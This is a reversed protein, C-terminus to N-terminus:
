VMIKGPVRSVRSDGSGVGEPGINGRVNQLLGREWLERRGDPGAAKWM